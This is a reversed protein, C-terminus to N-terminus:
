AKRDSPPDAERDAPLAADGDSRSGAERDAPSGARENQWAAPSPTLFHGDDWDPAFREPASLLPDSGPEDSEALTRLDSVGSGARDEDPHLEPGGPEAEDQRVASESVAAEVERFRGLVAGLEEALREIEDDDLEIRALRAIRRVEDLALRSM